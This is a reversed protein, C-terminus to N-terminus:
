LREVEIHYIPAGLFGINTKYAKAADEASAKLFFRETHIVDSRRGDSCGQYINLVYRPKLLSTIKFIMTGCLQTEFGKSNM